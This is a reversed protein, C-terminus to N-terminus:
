HLTYLLFCFFSQVHPHKDFISQIFLFSLGVRSFLFRDIQYASGYLSVRSSYYRGDVRDCRQHEVLSSRVEKTLTSYDGCHDIDHSIGCPLDGDEKNAKTESSLVENRNTERLLSGGINTAGAEGDGPSLSFMFREGENPNTTM